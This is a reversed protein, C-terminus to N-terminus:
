GWIVKHNSFYTLLLQLYRRRSLDHPIHLAQGACANSVYSWPVNVRPQALILSSIPILGHLHGRSMLNVPSILNSSLLFRRVASM